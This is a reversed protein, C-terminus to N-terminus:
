ELLGLRRGLTEHTINNVFSFSNFQHLKDEIDCKSKKWGQHLLLLPAYKRYFPFNWINTM